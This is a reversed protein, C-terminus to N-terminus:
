INTNKGALLKDISQKVGTDINCVYNTIHYHIDKNDIKVASQALFGNMRSHTFHLHQNQRFPYTRTKQIHNM